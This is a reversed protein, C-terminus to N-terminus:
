DIAEPGEAGNPSDLQTIQKGDPGFVDIVLDIGHQYAEALIAGGNEMIVTYTHADTPALQQELHLGRALETDSTGTAMAAPHTALSVTVALVPALNARIRKLLLM